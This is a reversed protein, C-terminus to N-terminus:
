ECKWTMVYCSYLISVAKKDLYFQSEKRVGFDAWTTEALIYEAGDITEIGILRFAHGGYGGVTRLVNKKDVMPWAIMAGTYIEYGGRLYDMVNLKNIKELCDITWTKGYNDFYGVTQGYYINDSFLSGEEESAYQLDKMHAWADYWNFGTTKDHNTRINYDEGMSCITACACGSTQGQRTETNGSLNFDKTYLLELTPLRKIKIIRAPTKTFSTKANRYGRARMSM